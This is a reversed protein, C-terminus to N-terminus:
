APPPTELILRAARHSAQLVGQPDVQREFRHSSDSMLKLARSTQRVAMPQFIASELVLDRTSTTVESEKGGM